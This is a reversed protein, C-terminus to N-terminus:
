RQRFRNCDLHLRHTDPHPSVVSADNRRRNPKKRRETWSATPSPAIEGASESHEPMFESESYQRCEDQFVCQYFMKSRM